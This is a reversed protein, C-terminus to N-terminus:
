HREKILTEKHLAALLYNTIRSFINYMAHLDDARHMWVAACCSVIQVPMESKKCVDLKNSGSPDLLIAPGPSFLAFERKVISKM